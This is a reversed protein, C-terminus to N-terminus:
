AAREEEGAAKVFAQLRIADDVGRMYAYLDQNNGSFHQRVGGGENVIEQLSYRTWDDGPSMASVYIHGINASNRVPETKLSYPESPRNLTRNLNAAMADLM